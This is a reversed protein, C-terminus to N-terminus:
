PNPDYLVGYKSINEFEEELMDFGRLDRGYGCARLAKIINDLVKKWEALFSEISINVNDRQNLLSETDGIVDRWESSIAIHGDAWNLQWICAFTNSPWHISLEGSEESRIAELMLLIDDIIISFDYKYSLLVPVYNWLMVAFETNLPFSAEIACGITEADCDKVTSFMPNGAQIKFTMSNRRMCINRMWTWKDELFMELDELADQACGSAKPDKLLEHLLPSVLDMDLVGHIRALHGICTAAICRLEHRHDRGFDLCKAQVWRWDPDHFAIQVLTHCMEGIDGSSFALEADQRAIPDAERYIM